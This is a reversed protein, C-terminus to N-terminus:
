ARMCIALRRPRPASKSSIRDCIPSCREIRGTSNDRSPRKRSEWLRRREWPFKSHLFSPPSSSSHHLHFLLHFLSISPSFSYFSNEIEKFFLFLFCRSIVLNNRYLIKKRVTIAQHFRSDKKLYLYKQEGLEKALSCLCARYQLLHSDFLWWGWQPLPPLRPTINHDYSQTKTCLTVLFAILNKKLQGRKLSKM